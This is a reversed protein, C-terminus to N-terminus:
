KLLSVLNLFKGMAMCVSRNFSLNFFRVCHSNITLIVIAVKATDIIEPLLIPKLNKAKGSVEEELLLSDLRQLDYVANKMMTYVEVISAEIDSFSPTFSIKPGNVQLSFDKFQNYLWLKGDV